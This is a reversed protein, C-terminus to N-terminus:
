GNKKETVNTTGLDNMNIIADIMEKAHTKINAPAEPSALLESFIDKAKTYNHSGMEKFANIEMVSYKFIGSGNVNEMHLYKKAAVDNYDKNDVAIISSSVAIYLLKAVDVLEQPGGSKEIVNKYEVLADQNKTSQLLIAAKRLGAIAKYTSNGNKILDDYKTLAEAEPATNAEYLADSYSAYRGEMFKKGAVGAGTLILAVIAAGIFYNGFKQWILAYKERFIDDKIEDFLDPM